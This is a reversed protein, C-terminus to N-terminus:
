NFHRAAHERAILEDRVAAGLPIPEGAQDRVTVMCSTDLVREAGSRVRVSLRFSDDWFESASVSV